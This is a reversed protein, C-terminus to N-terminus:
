KRRDEIVTGDDPPSGRPVPVIRGRPKLVDMVSQDYLAANGADTEVQVTM